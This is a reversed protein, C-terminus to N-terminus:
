GDSLDLGKLVAFPNTPDVDDEEACACPGDNLNAGCKVCLGACDEKCLVVFPTAHVLAALIAPAIDFTGEPGVFEFEDDEYGEVSSDEEFAFYGEVEGSLGLSTPELCRACPTQAVCRATGTLLIGEGTNTLLLDYHVGDAIAFDLGGVTFSDIDLVGEIPRASAPEVLDPQISVLLQQM